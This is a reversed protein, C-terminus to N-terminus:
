VQPVGLAWARSQRRGLAGQTSPSAKKGMWASAQEEWGLIRSVYWCRPGWAEPFGADRWWWSVLSSRARCPNAEGAGVGAAGRESFSLVQIMKKCMIVHGNDNVNINGTIHESAVGENCDLRKNRELM